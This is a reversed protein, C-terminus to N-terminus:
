RMESAFRDWLPALGGSRSAEIERAASAAARAAPLIRAFDPRSGQMRAAASLIAGYGDGGESTSRFTAMIPRVSSALDSRDTGLRRPPVPPPALGIRTLAGGRYTPRRRPLSRARDLRRSMSGAPWGLRRAAEERTHGELDCLVVPARYKEPLRLLEDDL